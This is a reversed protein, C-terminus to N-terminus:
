EMVMEKDEFSIHIDSVMFRITEHYSCILYDVIVEGKGRPVMGLVDIDIVIVM